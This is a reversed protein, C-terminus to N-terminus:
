NRQIVKHPVTKVRLVTGETLADDGAAFVNNIDNDDDAVDPGAPEQTAIVTKKRLYVSEATTVPEYPYVDTTVAVNIFRLDIVEGPAYDMNGNADDYSVSFEYSVGDGGMRSLMDDSEPSLGSVEENVKAGEVKIAGDSDLYDGTIPDIELKPYERLMLYGDKIYIYDVNYEPQMVTEMDTVDRSDSVITIERNAEKSFYNNLNELVDMTITQSENSTMARTYLKMNSNIAATVLTFVLMVIAIAVIIEILTFAKKKYM